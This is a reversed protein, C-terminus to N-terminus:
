RTQAAAADDSRECNECILSVDLKMVAGSVQYDEISFSKFPPRKFTIAYIGKPVRLEYNGSVTSKSYFSEGDKTKATIQVDPVLAGFEDTIVGSIVREAAPSSLASANILLVLGVILIKPLASM